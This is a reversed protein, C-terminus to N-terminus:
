GTVDKFVQYLTRPSQAGSFGKSFTGGEDKGIVFFPVSSIRHRRRGVEIEDQVASAGLDNSIYKELAEGDLNLDDAGIQVLVNTLSVNKGEEYLAKFIVANSDNTSVGNDEAFKILQHAKLTNPWWKWSNFMAGDQMGQRRLNDTWGSGGWRRECYGEFTEGRRDTAPDIQFPKWIIKVQPKEGQTHDQDNQFLNVAKELRKQGV